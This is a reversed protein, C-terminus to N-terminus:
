NPWRLQFYFRHTKPVKEDLKSYVINAVLHPSKIMNERSLLNFVIELELPQDRDLKRPFFSSQGHTLSHLPDSDFTPRSPISIGPGSKLAKFVVDLGGEKLISFEKNDEGPRHITLSEIYIGQASRNAFSITVHHKGQTATSDLVFIKFIVQKKFAKRANKALETGAKFIEMGTSFEALFAEPQRASASPQAKSVRSSPSKPMIQTREYVFSIADIWSGTIGDHRNWPRVIEM